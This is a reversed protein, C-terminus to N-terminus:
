RRSTAAVGLASVMVTARLDERRTQHAAARAPGARRAPRAGRGSPRDTRRSWLSAVGKLVGEDRGRLAIPPGRRPLRAEAQAPQRGRPVVRVAGRRAVLARDCPQQQLLVLHHGATRRTRMLDAVDLQPKSFFGRRRRPERPSCCCGWSGEWLRGTADADSNLFTLLARLSPPDGAPGEHEAYLPLLRARPEGGPHRKHQPGQRPAAAGFDTVNARVPPRAVSRPPVRGPVRGARVSASTAGDAERGGAPTARSRCPPSSTAGQSTPSPFVPVGAASVRPQLTKTKGTGTAGAILGHRNSHGLPVRVAGHRPPRGINVHPAM